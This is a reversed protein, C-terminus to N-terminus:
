RAREAALFYYLVLGLGLFVFPLPFAWLSSFAPFDAPPGNVGLAIMSGIGLATWVIGHVLTAQPNPGKEVRPPDIPLEPVPIGKEMAVLRERHVIELRRQRENHKMYFYGLYAAALAVVIIGDGFSHGM